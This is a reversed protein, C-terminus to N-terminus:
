ANFDFQRHQSSPVLKKNFEIAFKLAKQNGASVASMIPSLNKRNLKNVDETLEVLLNALKLASEHMALSGFTM